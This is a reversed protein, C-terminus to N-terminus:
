TTEKWSPLNMKVALDILADELSDGYGIMGGEDYLRCHRAMCEAVDLGKDEPLPIIAM